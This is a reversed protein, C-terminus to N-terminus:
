RYCAYGSINALNFVFGFDGIKLHPIGIRIMPQRSKIPPIKPILVSIRSHVPGSVDVSIAAAKISEAVGSGWGGTSVGSGVMVSVMGGGVSVEIGEGVYVASADTVGFGVAVGIGDRVGVKPIPDVSIESFSPITKMRM